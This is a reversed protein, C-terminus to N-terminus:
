YKLSYYYVILQCSQPLTSKRLSIFLHMRHSSAVSLRVLPDLLQISLLALASVSESTDCSRSRTPIYIYMDIYKHTHIYTYEHMYMKIRM